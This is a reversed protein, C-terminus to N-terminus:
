RIPFRIVQRSSVTLTETQLEITFITLHLNIRFLPNFYSEPIRIPMPSRLAYLKKEKRLDASIQM